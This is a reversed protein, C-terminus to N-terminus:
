ILIILNKKHFKKKDGEDLDGHFYIKCDHSEIRSRNKM